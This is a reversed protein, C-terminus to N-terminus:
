KNLVMAGCTEETCEDMNAGKFQFGVQAPSFVWLLNTM